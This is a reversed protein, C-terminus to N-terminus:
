LVGMAASAKGLAQEDTKCSKTVADVYFLAYSGKTFQDRPTNGSATAM